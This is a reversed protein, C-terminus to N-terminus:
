AVVEGTSLLFNGDKQKVLEVFQSEPKGICVALTAVTSLLTATTAPCIESPVELFSLIHAQDVQHGHVHVMWLSDPQVDLSHAVVLPPTDLIDQRTVECFRQESESSVDTWGM